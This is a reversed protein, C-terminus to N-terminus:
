VNLPWMNPQGFIRETKFYFYSVNKMKVLFKISCHIWQKTGSGEAMKWTIEYFDTKGFSKIKKLLSSNRTGKATKWPISIKEMLLIKYLNLYISIQLHLTQQNHCIYWFKGALGYCNSGPWWLFMCEQTDQHFITHKRNALEPQKEHLAAETPTIPFMISNIMQNELLLEYYLVGKWDRQICM